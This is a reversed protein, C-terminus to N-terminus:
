PPDFGGPNWPHCRCIRRIGKFSGRIAGYKEVAQIFYASCTPTFRCARGFIPSLFIQYGRVGIILLNAPLRVIFRLVQNV